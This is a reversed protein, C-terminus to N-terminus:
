AALPMGAGGQDAQGGAPSGCVPAPRDSPLGAFPRWKGWRPGIKDNETVTRDALWGIGGRLAPVGDHEMILTDAREAKGHALLWRAAECSPVRWQGIRKGEYDVAHASHTVRTINIRHQM